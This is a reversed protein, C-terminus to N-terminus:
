LVYTIKGMLYTYVTLTRWEPLSRLRRDCRTLIARARRRLFLRTVRGMVKVAVKSTGARHCYTTM